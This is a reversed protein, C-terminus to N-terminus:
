SAILEAVTMVKEGTGTSFAGTRFAEVFEPSLRGQLAEIITAKEIERFAAKEEPSMRPGVDDLYDDIQEMYNEFTTVAAREDIAAEKDLDRTLERKRMQLTALNDRKTEDLTEIDILNAQQQTLLSLGFTRDEVFRERDREEEARAQDFKFRELDLGIQDINSLAAEEYDRLGMQEARAADRALANASAAASGADKLGAAVDGSAIGAGLQMLANNLADARGRQLIEDVLDQSESRRADLRSQVGASMAEMRGLLDTADINKPIYEESEFDTLLDPTRTAETQVVESGSDRGLEVDVQDTLVSPLRLGPVDPDLLRTPDVRGVREDGVSEDALQTTDAGVLPESTEIENSQNRAYAERAQERLIDSRADPRAERLANFIKDIQADKERTSRNVGRLYTGYESFINRPTVPDLQSKQDIKDLDDQIYLGTNAKIVGRGLLIDKKTVKGDGSLDPFDGGKKFALVGRDAMNQDMSPPSTMPDPNPSMAAPASANMMRMAPQMAQMGQMVIQEAVTSQPQPQAAQFRQRMDNRRQIESVVLFQPLVGDPRTAKDFLVNDPLGKIMDEQDLINNLM